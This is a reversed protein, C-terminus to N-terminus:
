VQVINGYVPNNLVIIQSRLAITGTDVGLAENIQYLQKERGGYYASPVLIQGFLENISKM